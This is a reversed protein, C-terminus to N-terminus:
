YSSYPYSPHGNSIRANANMSRSYDGDANSYVAQDQQDDM